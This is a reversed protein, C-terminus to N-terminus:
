KSILRLLVTPVDMLTGDIRCNQNFKSITGVQICANEPITANEAEYRQVLPVYSIQGDRQLERLIKSELHLTGQPCQPLKKEYKVAYRKGTQRDQAEYIEAFTGSGLRAAIRLDGLVYGERLM